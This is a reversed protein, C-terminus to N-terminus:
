FEGTALPTKQKECSDNLSFQGTVSWGGIMSILGCLTRFPSFIGASYFSFSYM